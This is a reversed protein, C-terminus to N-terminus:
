TPYISFQFPQYVIWPLFFIAVLLYMQCIPKLSFCKYTINVHCGLNLIDTGTYYQNPCFLVYIPFKPYM